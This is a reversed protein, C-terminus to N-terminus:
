TKPATGPRSPPPFGPRPQGPPPVPRPLGPNIGPRPGGPTFSPAPQELRTVVLRRVQMTSGAPPTLELRRWVSNTSSVTTEWILAGGGGAPASKIQANELTATTSPPAAGELGIRWSGGPLFVWYSAKRFQPPGGPTSTVQSRSPTYASGNIPLLLPTMEKLAATFYLPLNQPRPTAFRDMLRKFLDPGHAAEIAMLEGIFFDMGDADEQTAAKANPGENLFRERLPAIQNAVYAAGDIPDDWADAMGNDVLMWKMYLREGVYGSAWQEPERYPGMKPLTIHGYEHALERVWEAPARSEGAAYLYINGQYEEAGAKGDPSLWVNVFRSGTPGRGLYDTGIWYLRAMLAGVRRALPEDETTMFHIVFRRYANRGGDADEASAGKKEETVCQVQLRLPYEVNSKPDRLPGYAESRGRTAYLLWSRAPIGGPIRPDKYTFSGERANPGAAAPASQGRAPVASLSASLTLTVLAALPARRVSRTNVAFPKRGLSAPSGEPTEAHEMTSQQVGSVDDPCLFDAGLGSGSPLSSRSAEFSILNERM